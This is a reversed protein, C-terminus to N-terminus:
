TQIFPLMQLYLHERMDVEATENFVGLSGPLNLLTNLLNDALLTAVPLSEDSDKSNLLEEAFEKLQKHLRVLSNKLPKHLVAYRVCFSSINQSIFKYDTLYDAIVGLYLLMADEDLEDSMHIDDMLYSLGAHFRAYLEEVVEEKGKFHYYLNGPSINMENALDVSTVLPEGEENFLVLAVDLILDRTKIKAM